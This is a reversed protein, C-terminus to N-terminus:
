FGVGISIGYTRDQFGYAGLYIESIIRRQIGVGYMQVDPRYMGVLFWDSRLNTTSHKTKDSDLSKDTSRNTSSDHETETEITKSGDPNITEKKKVTRKVDRKTESREKYVIKEVEKIETKKPGFFSGLAFAVILLIAISKYKKM